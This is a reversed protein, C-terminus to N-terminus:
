FPGASLFAPPAICQITVLQEKSYHVRGTKCFIYCNAADGFRAPRVTCRGKAHSAVGELLRIKRSKRMIIDESLFAQFRKKAIGSRYGQMKLLVPEILLHFLAKVAHPPGPLGFYLSDNLVGFLVAKGPLLKLSSFIIRGGLYRFTEEILDYKGPGMGGTSIIIDAHHNLIDLLRKRLIDASDAVTGCDDASGGNARVLGSIIVRNSSAKMGQKQTKEASPNEVLENGTCFFSVKPRRHVEVDVHGTDSLNGLDAPILCCGAPTILAGRRIEAARKKINSPSSAVQDKNIGILGDKELCYEQAIVKWGGSPVMAGTMIRYCSGMNCKQNRIDGAAIEGQLRYLCIDDNEKLCKRPIAFGDYTSQTYGPVPQLARVSAASIRGLAEALPVRESGTKKLQRSIEREAEALSILKNM